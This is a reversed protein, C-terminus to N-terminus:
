QYNISSMHINEVKSSHLALQALVAVQGCKPGIVIDKYLINIPLEIYYKNNEDLKAEKKTIVVRCENEYGYSKDKFLFRLEDIVKIIKKSNSEIEKEPLIAIVKSIDIIEQKLNSIATYFVVDNESDNKKDLYIVNYLKPVKKDKKKEDIRSIFFHENNIEACIGRGDDGYMSWMPLFDKDYTFSAIYTDSRKFVPNEYLDFIKKYIKNNKCENEDRLLEILLMGEQPDNLYQANYLRFKANKDLLKPFTDSKTYHCLTGDLLSVEKVACSLLIANKQHQLRQFSVKNTGVDSDSKEKLTQPINLKINAM